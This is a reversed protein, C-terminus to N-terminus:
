GLRVQYRCVAPHSEANTAASQLVEVPRGLSHELLRQDLHCLEPFEERLTVFPCRRLTILPGHHHAEWYAEYGLANLREVLQQLRQRLNGSLPLAVPAFLRAVLTDFHAEIGGNERLMLLLVRTLPELHAPQAKSTLRYRQAPRGRQGNSQPPATEVLGRERLLSLHHRVNAPTIQLAQAIENVRSLPRLRLYELIQERTTPTPM